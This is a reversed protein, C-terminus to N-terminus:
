CLAIRNLIYDISGDAFVEIISFFDEFCVIYKGKQINKLTIKKGQFIDSALTASIQPSLAQIQAFTLKTFPLYDLPNLIRIGENQSVSMEGESVRELSSLAGHVQLKHAIMEGISRVYAGESVSVEFHIFPHTFSLLEIDFIEMQVQALHVARGERALEYARKGGIHKASFIPPTYTIRGRMSDLVDKIEQVDREQVLSISEIREIDLSASKAGLWLTARYTKPTKLLYPFLRTYSGFGVVLVGRAFPDLTGLYGAKKINFQRKLSSLYANSSIFPPKYTAVLLANRM